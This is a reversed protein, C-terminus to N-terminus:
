RASAEKGFKRERKNSCSHCRLRRLIGGLRGYERLAVIAGDGVAKLPIQASKETNSSFVLDVIKVAGQRGGKFMECSTLDYWPQGNRQEDVGLGRGSQRLGRSGRTRGATHGNTPDYPGRKCYPEEMRLDQGEDHFM